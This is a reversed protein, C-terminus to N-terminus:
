HIGIASLFVRRLHEETFREPLAWESDRQRSLALFRTVAVSGDRRAPPVPVVQPLEEAVEWLASGEPAVALMPRGTALYDFLKAPLSAASSSLLLLGDADGMLRLAEARPVPPRIELKWGLAEFAAEFRRLEAIESAGLNGLFRLTGGREPSEELGALLPVMLHEVRRELRSSSIKGAYLITLRRGPEPEIGLRDPADPHPCVNTLVTIRDATFPLREGLFRRWHGSTVFVREARSLIRRELRGHRARQLRSGALLPIMPEDLWGDRLDVVLSAKLRGALSAAAVQVSEPPSSALVWEAGRARELVLPHRAARRSWLVLPDPVLLLYALTRRLRSERRLPIAPEGPPLDRYFGLPDRVTVLEGFDAREVRDRSGARVVVSAIGEEGLWRVFREVRTWGLHGPQGWYPAPFLVTSV